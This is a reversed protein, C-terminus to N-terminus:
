AVAGPLCACRRVRSRERRECARVVVLGGGLGCGCSWALSSTTAPGRVLVSVVVGVISVVVGVVCAPLLVSERACPGRRSRALSGVLTSSSRVRRSVVVGRRRGVRRWLCASCVLFLPLEGGVGWGVVAVRKPKWTARPNWLRYSPRHRGSILFGRERVPSPTRARRHPKCRTEYPQSAPVSSPRSTRGPQAPPQPSTVSRCSAVDLPPHATLATESMVKRARIPSLFTRTEFQM